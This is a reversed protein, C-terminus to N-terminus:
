SWRTTAAPPAADDNATSASDSVRGGAPSAEADGAAAVAPDAATLSALADTGLRRARSSQPGPKRADDLSVSGCEGSSARVLLATGDCVSRSHATCRPIPGKSMRIAWNRPELASVSEGPHWSACTLRPSPRNMATSQGSADRYSPLAAATDATAHARAGPGGLGLTASLPRSLMAPEVSSSSAQMPSPPQTSSRGADMDGHDPWATRGTVTM